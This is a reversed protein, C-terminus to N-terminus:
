GNLLSIRMNALFLFLSINILITSIIGTFVLTIVTIIIVLNNQYSKSEFKQFDILKDVIFDVFLNIISSVGTLFYTLFTSLKKKKKYNKCPSFTINEYTVKDASESKCYCFTYIKEKDSQNHNTYEDYIINTNNKYDINDCNTLLNYKTDFWDQIRSILLILFFLTIYFLSVYCLFIFM